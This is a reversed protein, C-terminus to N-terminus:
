VAGGMRRTRSMIESNKNSGHTDMLFKNSYNRNNDGDMITSYVTFLLGDFQIKHTVYQIQQTSVFLTNEIRNDVVSIDAM